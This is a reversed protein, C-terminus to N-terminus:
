YKSPVLIQRNEACHKCSVQDQSIIWYHAGSPSKECKWRGPDIYEKNTAASTMRNRMLSWEKAFIQINLSHLNFQSIKLFGNQSDNQGTYGYRMHKDFNWIASDGGTCFTIVVNSRSNTNARHLSTVRIKAM